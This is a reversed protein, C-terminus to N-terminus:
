KQKWIATGVNSHMINTIVLSSIFSNLEPMKDLEALFYVFETVLLLLGRYPAPEFGRCQGGLAANPGSQGNARCTEPQEDTNDGCDNDGDCLWRENICQRRGAGEPCRFYGPGCTTAAPVRGRM